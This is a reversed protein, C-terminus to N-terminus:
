FIYNTVRILARLKKQRGCSILGFSALVNDELQWVKEIRYGFNLIDLITKM